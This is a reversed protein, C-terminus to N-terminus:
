YEMTRVKKKIGLNGAIIKMWDNILRIFGHTLERKRHASIGDSLVPFIYNAPSKDLNGWKNMIREMDENIPITLMKPNSRATLRTKERQIVIFGDENKNKYKFMAIDKPNIGNAFYGFIWIDRAYMENPEATQAVYDYIMKIESLELAKKINAGTPIQFKGKGFPYSDDTFLKKNKPINIIARLSRLYIGETTESNGKSLFWREYAYLFEETIDELRLGSKYDLLSLLASFYLESTSIREQAELKKIKEGFAIALPGMSEFDVNSRIRDFKRKGYKKNKGEFKPQHPNSNVSVASSPRSKRKTPDDKYFQERFAQFTFTGLREILKKAREEEKNLRERIESLAETIRPKTLLKEFAEESVDIGIPFYVPVRKFTVRIALPFVEEKKEKNLKKTKKRARRKDLVRATTVKM